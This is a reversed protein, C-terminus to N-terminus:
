AHKKHKSSTGFSTLLDPFCIKITRKHVPLGLRSSYGLYTRICTQVYICTHVYAHIYTSLYMYTRVVYTCICRKHPTNTLSVTGISPATPYVLSFLHKGPQTTHRTAVSSCPCLSVASLLGHVTTVALAYNSAFLISSM